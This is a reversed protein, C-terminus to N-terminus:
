IDTSYRMRKVFSRLIHSTKPISINSFAFFSFSQWPEACWYSRDLILITICSFHAPNCHNHLPLFTNPVNQTKLKNFYHFVVQIFQIATTNEISLKVKFLHLNNWNYVVRCVFLLGLVLWRFKVVRNWYHFIM